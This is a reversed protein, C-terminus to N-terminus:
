QPPFAQNTYANESPRELVIAGAGAAQHCANCAKTLEDFGTFFRGRDRTAVIEDLAKLPDAMTNPVLQTLPESADEHTPHVAVVDDFGRQLERIEYAALAWNSAQGAFWLKSHRMQQLAMLEGLGPAYSEPPQRACGAAIVSLVAILLRRM